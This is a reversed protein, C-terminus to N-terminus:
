DNLGIDSAESYIPLANSVLHNGVLNCGGKNLDMSNELMLFRYDNNLPYSNGIVM